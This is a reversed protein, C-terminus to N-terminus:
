RWHATWSRWRGRARGLWQDGMGAARPAARRRPLRHVLGAPQERRRQRPRRTRVAVGSQGRRDGLHACATDTVLLSCGAARPGGRDALSRSGWSTRSRRAGTGRPVATAGSAAVGHRSARPRRPRAAAGTFVSSTCPSVPERHDTRPVLRRLLLSPWGRESSRSASCSARSSACGRERSCTTLFRTAAGGAPSPRSSCWSWSCRPWGRRRRASRERTFFTTVLQLVRDRGPLLLAAWHHAQRILRAARSRRVHDADDLHVGELGHRRPAACVIRRLDHAREVACFVM